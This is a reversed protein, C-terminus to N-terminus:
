EKHRNGKFEAFMDLRLKAMQGTKINHFVVGEPKATKDRMRMFLSFIGGDEVPHLFWNKINEFTKPYKHWSKYTLHDRVYTLLPIWLHGEIEYPNGNVKIGIVEGFYQGDTFDCYGREFSNLIAETIHKKAKNFFPIEETRNFIRTIKGKEIIISVDTGDLKETCLVEDERGEFVWKCGETIKPTVVYDGNIMERVFPSEIKPMDQIKM